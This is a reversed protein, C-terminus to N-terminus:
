TSSSPSPPSMSSCACTYECRIPTAGIEVLLSTAPTIVLVALYAWLSLRAVYGFQRLIVVAGFALPSVLYALFLPALSDSKAPVPGLASNNPESPPPRPAEVPVDPHGNDGTSTGPDVSLYRCRRDEASFVGNRM